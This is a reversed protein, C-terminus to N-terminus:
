RKKPKKPMAPPAPAPTTTTTTTTTAPASPKVVPAPEYPIAFNEVPRNAVAATMFDHWILAPLSGGFVGAFGEVNEMPIEGQPYGVWVCAALQPVYGCFWADQFEEGTGTKGAAPRGIAAATGTGETIVHQLAWTVHDAVDQPVAARARGSTRWLLVGEPGKVKAVAFPAHRVGRDALTAFADTMELPTVAQSGLTISCVPQLPSTIGMRQAVQAVRDPGVKVVVQAFITNVSHAIAQVLPMTGAAEDAYNHVQWPGNANLCRPDPITLTPPGTWVSDLSIGDELAATLTFTKFASGAQRHSQTALNFLPQRRGPVLSTLARIAGTRSDIAVLAAAPDGPTRLHAVIAENAARQLRPALTTEIRLGGTGARRAGLRRDLEGTVHRFFDSRPAQLSPPTHRLGLPSRVAKEYRADSIGGNSFMAALVQTRRSRAAKPKRFPDYTSPAQPLGALLAAQPLTLRRASRGFYTEAAAQVGYAHNGYYIQNLYAALIRQKPWIRALQVALCAEDIKGELSMPKTTGLYLNRVLQETITSGGQVIRGAAADAIAARVIAEYDLAGHQWFRRDEIAVTARALWPSMQHLAVPQRRRVAPVMGLRSGNAAYVFSNSGLEIPRESALSCSSRFAAMGTYGIGTLVAGVLGVLVAGVALRRAVPRGRRRQRRHAARLSAVPLPSRKAPPPRPRRQPWRARAAAIQDAGLHWRRGRNAAERPYRRRLWARLTASSIGLERALELPTM